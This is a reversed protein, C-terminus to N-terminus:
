RNEIILDKEKYGFLLIVEKYIVLVDKVTLHLDMYIDINSIKKCELFEHPNKSFCNKGRLSINLIDTIDDKHKELMIDCIKLLMDRWSNVNYKKGKFTFSKIAKGKYDKKDIKKSEELKLPSQAMLIDAKPKIESIIFKEVAELDPKYGCLDKTAEAIIDVLWKEPENIINQWAKPLHEHILMLRKRSNYIEEAAKITKGSIVNQKSLFVSFSQTIDQAEEKHIEMVHIKKEEIGGEILPLFFWWTHGNTLIAIKVNLEVAWNLLQEQFKQSDNMDQKVNLFVENSNKHKLLFDVKGDGISYEPQIEDINFPDWELLSLIKLVIGQKIAAEDFSELRDDSQIQKVFEILKKM